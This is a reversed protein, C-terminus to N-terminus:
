FLLLHVGAPKTEAVIDMRGPFWGLFNEVSVHTGELNQQLRRRRRSGLGELLLSLNSLFEEMAQIIDTNGTKYIALNPNHPYLM